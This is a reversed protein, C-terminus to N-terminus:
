TKSALIALRLKSVKTSYASLIGSKRLERENGHTFVRSTSKKM